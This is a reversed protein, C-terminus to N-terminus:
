NFKGRNLDSLQIENRDKTQTLVILCDNVSQCKWPNAEFALREHENSSKKMRDFRQSFMLFISKPKYFFILHEGIVLWYKKWPNLSPKKYNKLLCKREVFGQLSDMSDTSSAMSLSEKMDSELGLLFAKRHGKNYIIFSTVDCM